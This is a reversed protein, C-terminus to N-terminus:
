RGPVCSGPASFDGLKAEVNGSCDDRGECSTTATFRWEGSWRCDTSLNLPLLMQPSNTPPTDFDPDVGVNFNGVATVRVQSNVISLNAPTSGQIVPAGNVSMRASVEIGNGCHAPSGDALFLGTATGEELTFTVTTPTTTGDPGKLTGEIPASVPGIMARPSQTFGEPIADLDTLRRSEWSCEGTGHHGEPQTGKCGALSLLLAFPVVIRSATSNSLMM